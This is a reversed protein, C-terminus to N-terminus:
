TSAQPLRISFVYFAFSTTAPEADDDSCVGVAVAAAASSLPRLDTPSLIQDSM